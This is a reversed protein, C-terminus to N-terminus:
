RARYHIVLNAVADQGLAGTQVAFIGEREGSLSGLILGHNATPNALLSRVIDTVDLLVRRNEGRVVNRPGFASVGYLEPDVTGKFAGTLAYVELMPTEDVFGDHEVADVDVIMELYAGFLEVDGLWQPLPLALTYVASIETDHAALSAGTIPIVVRTALAPAAGLILAAFVTLWARTKM